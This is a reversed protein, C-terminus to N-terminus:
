REKLNVLIILTKSTERVISIDIAEKGLKPKFIFSVNRQILLKPHNETKVTSDTM